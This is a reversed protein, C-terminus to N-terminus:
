LGVIESVDLQVQPLVLPSVTEGPGYTNHAQFHGAVPRRYVEVCADKLNM